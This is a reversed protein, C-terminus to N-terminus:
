NRRIDIGCAVIPRGCIAEALEQPTNCGIDGGDLVRGELVHARLPQYTPRASSESPGTLM